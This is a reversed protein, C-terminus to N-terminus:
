SKKTTEELGADRLLASFMSQPDNTLKEPSDLEAVSGYDLLLIRDSDLITHIRHAITIITCDYFVDRITKQVVSDTELDVSATAEDLVLIKSKRLIARTLCILQRQGLSFNEGYESVIYDLGGKLQYIHTKLHALDLAKWIEYDSYLKLPDLNFRLTGSFLVPDQPIITLRSRLDHLGFNSINQGDILIEGSSAELIRFLSLSLSSKGSGTRGVIGIKEGPRIQINIDRLVLNTGERYRTSYSKIDISGQSPWDRNPRLGKIWEDERKNKMYELVREISVINTELDSTMRVMWSLTQTINLSYAITLGAIEAGVLDKYYVSFIAVASTVLNGFFELRISLWRNAIVNPYACSNNTDVLTDSYQVFRDVCDYARISSMGSLTEGFNSWMPSRTTSELRKLQRTTVIFVKQIMYYVVGLVFIMILFSPFAYCILLVTSIVSFVCSLWSRFTNPMITDIVNIDKSFLNLIRGMPTTDFFIMPSHMVGDLLQHHMRKSARVTGRALCLSGFLISLCNLGGLLGYIAIRFARLETDNALEPDHSDASWLSLWINSYLSFASALILLFVLGTLWRYSLASFYYFYVAWNVSGIEMKESDILRSSEQKSVVSKVTKGCIDALKDNEHKELKDEDEDDKKQNGFYQRMLDGFQGREKAMLEKYTGSEIIRGDKLLVVQDVYPLVFLSNTALVRTKEKLIGTESSLIQTYIHQAVHSDLASLPDDLLYINSDSYCARALSVRQKQGGSLNIGKEGIEAEDGGPLFELDSSLSCASIIREYRDKDYSKGFLINEKVTMNQIWALQPVYAISQSKCVNFRGSIRYMDGLISSLMSSKGSAVQGVIAVFSGKKVHLDINKLNGGKNTDSSTWSLSGGEITIAENSEQREVYRPLEDNNLFKKIRAASVLTLALSNILNPLMTLPFRLLNFLTISVFAKEATLVNSSNSAIYVAFTCIAVVFPSTTWFFVQIADLNYIKVIHELEQKRFGFLNSIFSNEWAYLKIVKIGSLIEGMHQVRKDQVNALKLQATKIMRVLIAVLPMFVIMALVGAFVALGLEQYLLFIALVIQLPASWFLNIYMILDQFRHSDVSMLNIMEGSTSQEKSAGGVLLTKRYIAGILMSRTHLGIIQINYFYNGLLISQITPLVLFLTGFLYGHWIPDSSNMFQLLKKLIMPTLFQLVDQGLKLIFALTFRAYMLRFLVVFVSNHGIREGDASLYTKKSKLFAPKTWARIFEPVLSRTEDRKQTRWLNDLQIINKYGFILYKNFWWFTINSFFSAYTEPAVPRSDKPDPLIVPTDGRCEFLFTIIVTPCFTLLSINKPTGLFESNNDNLITRIIFYYNISECIVLAFLYFWVSSSTHIGAARQMCYIVLLVTCCGLQLMPAIFDSVLLWESEDLHYINELSESLKLTVLVFSLVIRTTNFKNWEIPIKKYRLVSYIHDM